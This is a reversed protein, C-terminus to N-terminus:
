PKEQPREADWKEDELEIGQVIGLDFGFRVVGKQIGRWVNRQMVTLVPLIRADPMPPFYQASFTLWQRQSWSENWNKELIEGLKIRQEPTLVLIKDIKVVLNLVVARKRAAARQDLEQQYRAAQEPSLTRRVAKVIGDAIPTRPDSEQAPIGRMISAYKKITAKLAPEADAAIKDYQEKTPQCVSRMFHLETKYLIQFQAGYQQEFMQVNPDQALKLPAAQKLPAVQAFAQGSLWIAGATCFLFTVRQRM